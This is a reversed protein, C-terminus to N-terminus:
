SLKIIYDLLKQLKANDYNKNELDQSLILVGVKELASKVAMIQHIINISDQEGIQVMKSIGAIQGEIRTLRNNIEQNNMYISYGRLTYIALQNTSKKHIFNKFQEV